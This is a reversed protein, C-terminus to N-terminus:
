IQNDIQLNNQLELEDQVVKTNWKPSLPEPRSHM